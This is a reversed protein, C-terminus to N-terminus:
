PTQDLGVLEADVGGPRAVMSAASAHLGLAVVV